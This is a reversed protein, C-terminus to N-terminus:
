PNERERGAPTKEELVRLAEVVHAKMEPPGQDLVSLVASRIALWERSVTLDRGTADTQAIKVPMDLGLYKSRRDMIRLCRDVAGQDGKVAMGYMQRFLTDLRELEMSRIGDAKETLDEQIRELEKVVVRRARSESCGLHEGIKQYTHGAKRLELATIRREAATIAQRSAKSRGM